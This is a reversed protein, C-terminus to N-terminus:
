RSALWARARMGLETTFGVEVHRITGERDIWFTTPFARVGFRAALAGDPDAIVRLDGLDHADVYEQVAAASGSQTAVGIVEHDGALSAISGEEAACVGCWSAFFHVVVPEERPAGLAITEGELSTLAFAPAQGAATGSAQWARVVLFVAIIAVVELATRWRPRAPPKTKTTAM